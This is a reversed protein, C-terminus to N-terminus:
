RSLEGSLAKTTVSRSLRLGLRISVPTSVQAHAGGDRCVGQGWVPVRDGLAHAANDPRRTVLKLPGDEPIAVMFLFRMNRYALALFSM